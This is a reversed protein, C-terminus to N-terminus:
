VKLLIKKSEKIQKKVSEFYEKDELTAVAAIAAINNVSFPSSIRRIYEIIKSDSIIYGIRLGALAYDKSFSRVIVVNKYSKLIDIFSEEAFSVYTEDILVISNKSIDLIKLM